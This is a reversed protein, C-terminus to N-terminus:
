ICGSFSPITLNFQKRHRSIVGGIYIRKRVLKPNPVDKLYQAPNRDVKLLIEQGQKLMSIDHWKGDNLKNSKYVLIKPEKQGQVQLQLLGNMINLFFYHTYNNYNAWVWLMGNPLVTRFSFEIKFQNVDLFDDEFTLRSHSAEAIGFRAADEGDNEALLNSGCQM